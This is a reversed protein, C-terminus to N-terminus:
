CEFPFECGLRARRIENYVAEALPVDIVLGGMTEVRTAAVELSEEIKVRVNQPQFRHEDLGRVWEKESVLVTELIFGAVARDVRM